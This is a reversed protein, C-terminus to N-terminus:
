TYLRARQRLVEFPAVDWSAIIAEAGEGADIRQRLGPGRLPPRHGAVEGGAAGRGRRSHLGPAGPQEGGRGGGRGAM